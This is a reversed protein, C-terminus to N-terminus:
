AENSIDFTKARPAVGESVAVAPVAVTVTEDGAIAYSGAAPLTITVVTDSTRVINGHAISVEADFGNGGSDDGTISAILATTIANDDGVTAVWEDGTLTIIITEGGTVIESELVGGAIATGTLAVSTESITFTASQAANGKLLASGPVIVTVTEDDDVDYSGSAPLTVTVRTDSTRAVNGHAITVEDNFGTGGSDDGVIGAIFATTIANDDGLDPHFADGTVDIILTDGGAVVDEATLGDTIATGSLAITIAGAGFPNNAIADNRALHNRPAGHVIEHQAIRDARSAETRPYGMKRPM